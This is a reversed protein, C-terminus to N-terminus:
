RGRYTARRESQSRWDVARSWPDGSPRVQRRDAPVHCSSISVWRDLLLVAWWLRKLEEMETWAGFRRLMQPANRNDLGLAKAFTACNGISLYAAPYIAHGIEYLAILLNSQLLQPTMVANAELAVAYNKVAWYDNTGTSAQCHSEEDSLLHMAAFLLALDPTVEKNPESLLLELRKKSLIPFWVHITDFYRDGIKKLGDVDGIIDYIEKAIPPCQKPVNMQCEQFIENDLFFMAPFSEFPNTNVMRATPYNPPRAQCLQSSQQAIQQNRQLLLMELETVRNQLARLSDGAAAPTETYDCARSM